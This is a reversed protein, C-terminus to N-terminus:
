KERKVRTVSQRILNKQKRRFQMQKETGPNQNLLRDVESMNGAARMRARERIKEVYEKFPVPLPLDPLDYDVDEERIISAIFKPPLEKLSLEGGNFRKTLKHIWRELERVNGPWDHQQLQEVIEKTLTLPSALTQKKSYIRLFHEVMLPIDERREKLTPLEITEHFRDKLDQAFLTSDRVNKNTAAIVQTKVRYVTESGIPRFEGKEVYRLLAEQGDMPLNGIEDLFVMKKDCQKLIGPKSEIAGTFAGKRHGFLESVVLSEPFTSCDFTTLKNDGKRHYLKWIADAVIQKGTGREGLILVHTENDIDMLIQEKIQRIQQSQGILEPIQRDRESVSLQEKLRENEKRAINLQVRLEEPATIQPFNDIELDVEQTPKGRARAYKTEFSQILRSNPIIGSKHLLVWCTTMTPTGSTINIIKEQTKINDLELLRQTEHLLTPYVLDFDVPNVLDVSIMQVNVGPKEAEMFAKNQRAIEQYNVQDIKRPESVFLYVDTIKEKYQLFITLVAGYGERSKEIMDHNGVFTLFIM